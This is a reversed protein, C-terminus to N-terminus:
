GSLRHRPRRCRRHGAGPLDPRHRDAADLMQGAELSSVTDEMTALRKASVAEDVKWYAESPEVAGGESLRALNLCIRRLEDLQGYAWWTQGRGIATVIHEVDHWFWVVLRRVDEQAADPDPKNGPRGLAREVVGTKDFLVRHPGDISLEWEAAVFLELAAGDAYIVHLNSHDGFDECFLPEGVARVLEGLHAIVDDHAADTTILGIDLDSFRDADGAARSGYVLLAVVREDPECVTVLRDILPEIDHAEM